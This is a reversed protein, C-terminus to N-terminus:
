SIKRKANTQRSSHTRTHATLESISMCYFYFFQKSRKIDYFSPIKPENLVCYKNVNKELYKNAKFTCYILYKISVYKVFLLGSYCFIINLIFVMLRRYTNRLFYMM